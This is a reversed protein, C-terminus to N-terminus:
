SGSARDRQATVLMWEIKSQTARAPPQYRFSAVWATLAQEVCTPASIARIEDTRGSPAVTFTVTYAGTARCDNPIDLAASSLLTLPPEPPVLSPTTQCGALLALASALVPSSHFRDPRPM